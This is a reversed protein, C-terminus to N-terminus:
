KAAKKKARLLLIVGIITPLFFGLLEFIAYASNFSFLRALSGNVVGGFIAFAQLFLLIIGTKKM